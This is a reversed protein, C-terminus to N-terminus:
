KFDSVNERNYSDLLRERYEYVRSGIELIGVMAGARLLENPGDIAAAAMLGGYLLAKAFNKESPYSLRLKMVMVAM